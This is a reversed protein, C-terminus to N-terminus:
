SRSDGQSKTRLKHALMRMDADGLLILVGGWACCGAGISLALAGAAPLGPLVVPVVSLPERLPCAMGCLRLVALAGAAAGGAALVHRLCAMGDLLAWAPLVPRVRRRLGRWLWLTQGWLAASAAAAPWWFYIDRAM